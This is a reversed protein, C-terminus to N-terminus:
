KVLPSQLVINFVQMSTSTARQLRAIAQNYDVQARIEQNRADALENERQFVLFLTSRGVQYLKQEGELQLEASERAVRVSQVRLRST